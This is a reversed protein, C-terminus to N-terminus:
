HPDFGGVIVPSSIAMHDDAQIARVYYYDGAGHPRRDIFSFSVDSPVERDVLTLTVKDQYGDVAYERVVSGQKLEQLGIVMTTPPITAPARTLPAQDADERGGRLAIELTPLPMPSPEQSSLGEGVPALAAPDPEGTQARPQQLRVLFSSHAGRTWTIFDVRQSDGPNIAAGQRRTDVLNAADVGAIRGDTVRLFGIWERGNRPLDHQGGLPASASHFEVKLWESDTNTALRRTAIVEGNRVLEVRDIPATGRVRGEINRVIAPGARSGPPLGNVRTDLVIRPGTTVWTRGERLADWLSEGALVSVATRGDRGALPSFHSTASGTFGVRQGLAAVREGYWGFSGAGSQIEVLDPTGLGFGRPDAPVEPIAVTIAGRPAQALATQRPYELRPARAADLAVESLLVMHGGSRLAASWQFGDVGPEALRGSWNATDFHDDHDILWLSDTIGLYSARVEPPTSLADSLSTHAHLEVWRVEDAAGASAAPLSARLGGGASRIEIEGRSAERLTLEFIPTPDDGADVRTVFDGGVLVDLSPFQGTALNGYRDEFRLTVTVSAAAGSGVNASARIQSAPGAAIAFPAGGPRHLFDGSARRYALPLRYRSYAKVPLLVNRYRFRIASDAAIEGDVVRWVPVVRPGHLSGALPSLIEAGAELRVGSGADATVYNRAGPDVNQLADLFSWHTEALLVAGPGLAVGPRLVQEFGVTEGVQFRVADIAVTGPDSQLALRNLHARIEQELRAIEAASYNDNAALAASAAPVAGVPLREGNERANRAAEFLSRAAEHLTSLQSNSARREVIAISDPAAFAPGAILLGFILWGAKQM